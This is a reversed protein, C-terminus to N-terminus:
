DPMPTQFLQIQSVHILPSCANSHIPVVARIVVCENSFVGEFCFVLSYDSGHNFNITYHGFDLCEKLWHRGADGDVGM